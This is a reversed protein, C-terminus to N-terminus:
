AVGQLGCSSTSSSLSPQLLEWEQRCFEMAIDSLNADVQVCVCLRVSTGCSLNTLSARLGVDCVTCMCYGWGVPYELNYETGAVLLSATIYGPEPAPAANLSAALHQMEEVLKSQVRVPPM